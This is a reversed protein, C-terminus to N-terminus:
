KIKEGEAEYGSNDYPDSASIVDRTGYCTVALTPEEYIMKSNKENEVIFM